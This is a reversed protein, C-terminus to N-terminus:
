ISGWADKLVPAAASGTATGTTRVGGEMGLAMRNQLKGSTHQGTCSATAGGGVVGALSLTAAAGAACLLAAGEAQLETRCTQGGWCVTRSGAVGQQQACTEESRGCGGILVLRVATTGQLLMQLRSSPGTAKSGMCPDQLFAARDRTRCTTHQPLCVTLFSMTMLLQSNTTL